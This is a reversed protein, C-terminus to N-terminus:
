WCSSSTHWLVDVAVVAESRPMLAVDVMVVVRGKRVEVGTISQDALKRGTTSHTRESVNDVAGASTGAETGGASSAKM